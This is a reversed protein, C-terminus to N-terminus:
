ESTQAAYAAPLREGHPSRPNFNKYTFQTQVTKGTARRSSLTSQFSGPFPICSSSAHTARRSSLTSQFLADATDAPYREPDSETLLAHISIETSGTKTRTSAQREGHPSRPNFNPRVEAPVISIRTARRSSLTSQFKLRSRRTRGPRVTARRSSLTSQFVQYIYSVTGAYVDSETLLAHISIKKFASLEDLAETARRSSLTSQFEPPPSTPTAPHPTARRSSLTSQFIM